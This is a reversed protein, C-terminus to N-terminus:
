SYKKWFYLRRHVFQNLYNTPCPVCMCDSPFSKKRLLDKGEQRFLCYNRSLWIDKFSDKYINGMSKNCNCCPLVSGDATILTGGIFGAYCPVSEQVSKKRECCQLFDFFNNKISIDKFSRIDERIQVLHKDELKLYRCKESTIGVERFIIQDAKVDQALAVMEKVEHCNISMIVFSLCVHPKKKNLIRRKEKLYKINEIIKNFCGAPAGNHIEQYTEPTAANLSIYLGEVRFGIFSDILEHSLLVGNTTIYAKIKHHSILRIVDMLKPYILTEGYGVLNIKKTRMEGLDTILKLVADHTLIRHASVPIYTKKDSLTSFVNCMVCKLNCADSLGLQITFPGILARNLYIGLIVKIVSILESLLVM